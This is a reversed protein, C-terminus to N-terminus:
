APDGPWNYRYESMGGEDDIEPGPDYEEVPLDEDQEGAEFQAVIAAMQGATEAWDQTEIEDDATYRTWNFGEAADGTETTAPGYSLRRGDALTITTVGDPTSIGTM